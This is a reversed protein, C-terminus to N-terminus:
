CTPAGGPSTASDALVGDVYLDFRFEVPVCVQPTPVEVGGGAGLPGVYFLPAPQVWSAGPAPREYGAVVVQAGAPVGTSALQVTTVDDAFTASLIELSAAPPPSRDPDIRDSGAAAAAVMAVGDDRFRDAMQAQAPVQDAVYSLLSLYQAATKRNTDSGKMATLQRVARDLWDDAASEDDQAVAVASRWLMLGPTRDNDEVADELLVAARDWDAAVIQTLAAVAVTRADKTGGLEFATDLDASAADVVEPSRDTIALSTLLDPNAVVMRALGRGEYAPAYEEDADVAEDFDALADESRGESLAVLGSATRGIATLDVEPIPKQYIHIAWGFCFVALLLGPGVFPPRLKRGVVMTFGILFIAIALTTMVTEYQSARANWTIRQEVVASQELSLRRARESIATVRTADVGLAGDVLAQGAELRAQGRAPDLNADVEAAAEESINFAGRLPFVQSEAAVQELGSQVGRDVVNATQAEAALRTAERTTRSENTAANTQLVAIWAGLLALTALTVGIRRRYRSEAREEDDVVEDDTTEDDVVAEDDAM